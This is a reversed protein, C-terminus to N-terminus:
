NLTHQTKSILENRDIHPSRELLFACSSPSPEPGKAQVEGCFGVYARLTSCLCLSCLFVCFFLSVCVCVEKEWSYVGCSNSNPTQTIKIVLALFLTVSNLFFLYSIIINIPM